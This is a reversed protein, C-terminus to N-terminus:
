NAIPFAAGCSPFRRHTHVPSHGARQKLWHMSRPAQERLCFYSSSLTPTLHSDLMYVLVESLLQSLEIILISPLRQTPFTIPGLGDQVGGPRSGEFCGQGAKGQGAWQTPTLGQSSGRGEWWHWNHEGGRPRNLSPLLGELSRTVSAQPCWLHAQALSPLYPLQSRSRLRGSRGAEMRQHTLSCCGPNSDWVRCSCPDLPSPCCSSMPCDLHQIPEWSPVALRVATTRAAPTEM